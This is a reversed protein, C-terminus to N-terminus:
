TKKERIRLHGVILKEPYEIGSKWPEFFIYFNGDILNSAVRDNTEPELGYFQRLIDHQFFIDASVGALKAVRGDPVERCFFSWLKELVKRNRINKDDNIFRHLSKREVTVNGNILGAERQLDPISFGTNENNKDCFLKADARIANIQALSGIYKSM